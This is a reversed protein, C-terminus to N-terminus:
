EGELGSAGLMWVARTARCMHVTGARQLRDARPIVPTLREAAM